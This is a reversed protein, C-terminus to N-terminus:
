LGFPYTEQEGRVWESTPDLPELARTEEFHLIADFQDALRCRFYHSARETDPLYLVGIARQLRPERLAEAVDGRLPLWFRDRNLRSLIEEISGPLGPRVRKREAPGDWDSAATVSGKYTTFGILCCDDGYRERTLQGVNHEGRAGMETARADGLHSNHEWVAIRASRGLRRSLHRHLLDLTDSMHTDRLNWTNVRSSFMQRYYAEASQILRANQEAQFQEDEALPDGAAVYRDAQQHIDMLQRVVEDECSPRRGLTVGYGYHRESSVHDLCGYRQRAADAADPDVKDLYDLVAAVSEYLSYMDLGYFGVQQEYPLGQNHERLWGVFDRIVRNRWMWLPFRTFDSLAQEPSSDDGLWRVYRNVRYASPWDGEIAIASLGHDIILRKTLEVRTEYFEHTGHTAEGLLVFSKNAALNLLPAYDQPPNDLSLAAKRLSDNLSTQIRSM